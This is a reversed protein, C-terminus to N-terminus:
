RNLICLPEPIHKSLSNSLIHSEPDKEFGYHNTNFFVLPLVNSKVPMSKQYVISRVGTSNSTSYDSYIAGYNNDEFTELKFKDIYGEVPDVKANITTFCYSNKIIERIHDKFFQADSEEYKFLNYYDKSSFTSSSYLLVNLVVDYKSSNSLDKIKKFRDEDISSTVININVRKM